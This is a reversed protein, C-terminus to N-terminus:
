KGLIEKKMQQFEDDDIVAIAVVGTAKLESETLQRVEGWRGSRELDAM